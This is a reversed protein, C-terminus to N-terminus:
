GIRRFVIRFDSLLESCRQEWFDGVEAKEVDRLVIAACTFYLNPRAHVDELAFHQGCFSCKMSREAGDRWMEVSQSFEKAINKACFSCLVRYGGQHNAYLRPKSQQEVILTAFSQAPLHLGCNKAERMEQALTLLGCFDTNESPALCICCDLQHRVIPM